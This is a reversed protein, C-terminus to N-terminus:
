GDWISKFARRAGPSHQQSDDSGMGSLSPRGRRARVPPNPITVVWGLYVQQSDDPGAIRPQSDDSGM